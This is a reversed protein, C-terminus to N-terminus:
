MELSKKYIDSLKIKEPNKIERSIGKVDLSELDLFTDVPIDKFEREYVIRAKLSKEINISGDSVRNNTLIFSCPLMDNLLGDTLNNFITVYKNNTLDEDLYELCDELVFVINKQTKQYFERLKSLTDPHNLSVFMSHTLYIYSLERYSTKIIYRLATTKGTGSEGNFLIIGNPNKIFNEVIKQSDKLFTDGFYLPVYDYDVKNNKMNVKDIYISEQSFFFTYYYPLEKLNNISLHKLQKKLQLNTLNNIKNLITEVQAEFNGSHYFCVYFALNVDKYFELLMYVEENVKMAIKSAGNEFNVTEFFYDFKDEKFVQKVFRFISTLPTPLICDKTSPIYGTKDLFYKQLFIDNNDGNLIENFRETEIKLQNKKFKM